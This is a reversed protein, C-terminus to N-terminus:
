KEKNRENKNENNQFLRLALKSKPSLNTYETSKNLKIM